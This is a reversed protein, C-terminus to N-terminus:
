TMEKLKQKKAEILEQVTEYVVAASKKMDSTEMIEKLVELQTIDTRLEEKTDGTVTDKTIKFKPM